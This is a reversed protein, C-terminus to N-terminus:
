SLSRNLSECRRNIEERMIDSWPWDEGELYEGTCLALAQQALEQAHTQKYQAYVAEFQHYDWKADTVKLRYRDNVYEIHLGTCGAAKLNKRLAYLSTQLYALAREPEYEGWQEDCLKYKSIWKGEYQLLYALLEKSKTRTWKVARGDQKVEFAGFSRIQCQVEVPASGLEMRRSEEMRKVLKDITKYMREPSIPKLLYDIANVDFAQSAYHNYATIFVIDPQINGEMSMREALEIGSLGPMEIDMFVCDPSLREIEQLLQLPDNYMGIIEIRKDNALMSALENLIIPEDDVVIARLM